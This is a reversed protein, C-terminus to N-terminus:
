RAGGFLDRQPNPNALFWTQKRFKPNVECRREGYTDLLGLEKGKNLRASVTSDPLGLARSIEALTRARGSATIFAIVRDLQTQRRPQETADHYSRIASMAQKM